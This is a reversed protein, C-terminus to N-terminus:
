AVTQRFPCMRSFYHSSYRKKCGQNGFYDGTEAKFCKVFKPPCVDDASGPFTLADNVDESGGVNVIIVEFDPYDQEMIRPINRELSQADCNFTHVIVSLSPVSLRGDDLDVGAVYRRMVSRRRLSRVALASAVLLILMLALAEYVSIEFPLFSEM